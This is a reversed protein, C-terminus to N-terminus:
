FLLSFINIIWIIFGFVCIMFLIIPSFIWLLAKLQSPLTNLDFITTYKLIYYMIIYSLITFCINYIKQEKDPEEQEFGMAKKVM